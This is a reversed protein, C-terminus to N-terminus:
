LLISPQIEINITDSAAAIGIQTSHGTDPAITSLAFGNLFIRDGAVFSWLPNVIKGGAQIGGSFGSAIDNVAIGIIKNRHATNDSSARFGNGTVVDYKNVNEAAVVNLAVGEGSDGKDGKPGIDGFKIEIVPAAPETLEINVPPSASYNLAIEVPSQDVLELSIDIVNPM